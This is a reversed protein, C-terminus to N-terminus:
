TDGITRLHPTCVAKHYITKGTVVKIFHGNVIGTIFKCTMDRTNVM